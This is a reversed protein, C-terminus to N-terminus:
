LRFRGFSRSLLRCTFLPLRRGLGISDDGLDNFHEGVIRKRRIPEHGDKKLQKARVKADTPFASHEKAHVRQRPNPDTRIPSHERSLQPNPYTRISSTDHGHAEGQSKEPLTAYSQLSQEVQSADPQPATYGTRIGHGHTQPDHGTRDPLTDNFEGNSNGNPQTESGTDLLRNSDPINKFISSATLSTNNM